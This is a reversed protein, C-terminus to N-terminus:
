SSDTLSGRTPAIRKWMALHLAQLLPLQAFDKLLEFGHRAFSGKLDRLSTAWRDPKNVGLAVRLRRNLSPYSWASIYSLLVYHRSVRCLEGIILQRLEPTSLKPFLRFCIVTDFSGDPFTLRQLDERHVPCNLGSAAVAQGAISVIEESVDAGSVTYGRRALDLMVSGGGCPVDLVRHTNPVAMMARHILRMEAVMKVPKMRKLYHCACEASSYKAQENM